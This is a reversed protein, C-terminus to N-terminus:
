NCSLLDRIAEAGSLSAKFFMLFDDASFLNWVSPCNCARLIPLITGRNVLDTINQSPVEEVLIPLITGRCFINSFLSVFLTATGPKFCRSCQVARPKMAAPFFAAGERTISYITNASSCAKATAHFLCNNCDGEVLFNLAPSKCGFFKMM